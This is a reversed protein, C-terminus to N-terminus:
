LVVRFTPVLGLHNSNRLLCSVCPQKRDFGYRFDIAVIGVLRHLANQFLIEPANLRFAWSNNPHPARCSDRALLQTETAVITPDAAPKREPSALCAGLPLREPPRERQASRRDNAAASLQCRLGPRPFALRQERPLDLAEGFRREATEDLKNM